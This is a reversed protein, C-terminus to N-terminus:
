EYDELKFVKIDHILQSYITVFTSQKFKYQKEAIHGNSFSVRLTAQGDPTVHVDVKHFPFTHHLVWYERHKMFGENVLLQVHDPTLEGKSEFRAVMASKIQSM